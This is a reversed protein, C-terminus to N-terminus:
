GAEPRRNGFASLFQALREMGASPSFLGNWREEARVVSEHVREPDAIM